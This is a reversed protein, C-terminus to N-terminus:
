KRFTLKQAKIPPNRRTAESESLTLLVVRATFIKKWFPQLQQTAFFFFVWLIGFLQRVQSSGSKFCGGGKIGNGPGWGCFCFFCCGPWFTSFIMSLFGHKGLGLHKNTNVQGNSEDDLIHFLMELDELIKELPCISVGCMTNLVYTKPKSPKTLHNQRNQTSTLPM